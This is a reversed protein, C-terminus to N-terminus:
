CRSLAGYSASFDGYSASSGRLWHGRCPTASQPLLCLWRRRLSWQARAAHKGMLKGGNPMLLTILNVHQSHLLICLLRPPRPDEAEYPSKEAEYPAKVWSQRKLLYNPLLCRSSLVWRSAVLALRAASHPAGM